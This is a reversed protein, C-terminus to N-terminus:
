STMMAYKGSSISCYRLGSRVGEKDKSQIPGNRDRGM